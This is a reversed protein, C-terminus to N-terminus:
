DDPPQPLGGKEEGDKAPAIAELYAVDMKRICRRFCFADWEDLCNISIYRDISAAPIPMSGHQTVSRDTSLEQFADIWEIGGPFVEPPIYHAPIARGAREMHDVMASVAAGHLYM